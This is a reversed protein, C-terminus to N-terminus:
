SLLLSSISLSARTAPDAESNEHRWLGKKGLCILFLDLTAHLNNEGCVSAADTLELAMRSCEMDELLM